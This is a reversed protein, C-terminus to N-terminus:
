RKHLYSAKHDFSDIFRKFTNSQLVKLLNISELKLEALIV